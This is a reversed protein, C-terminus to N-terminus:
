WNTKRQTKTHINTLDTHRHEGWCGTDGWREEGAATTEDRQGSPLQTRGDEGLRLLSPEAALARTRWLPAWAGPPSVPWTHPCSKFFSNFGFFPCNMRTQLLGERHYRWGKTINSDRFFHVKCTCLIIRDINWGWLQQLRKPMSAGLLNLFFITVEKLKTNFKVLFFTCRDFNWIECSLCM